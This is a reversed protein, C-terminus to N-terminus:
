WLGVKKGDLRRIGRRNGRSSKSYCRTSYLLPGQFSLFRLSGVRLAHKRSALKREFDNPDRLIGSDIPAARTFGMFHCSMVKQCSVIWPDPLPSLTDFQRSRGLILAKSFSSLCSIRLVVLVLVPSTAADGVDGRVLICQIVRDNNATPQFKDLSFFVTNVFNQNWLM